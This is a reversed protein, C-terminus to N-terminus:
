GPDPPTPLAARRTSLRTKLAQMTIRALSLYRRRLPRTILTGSYVRKDAGGFEKKFRYLGHDGDQPDRAAARVEGLSFTLFGREKLSTVAKWLVPYSANLRYGRPASGGFLYVAHRAFTSLLVCSLPEGGECALFLEAEGSGILERIAKLFFEEDNRNRRKGSSIHKAITHEFLPQVRDLAPDDARTICRADVAHREAKRLKRRVSDALNAFLVEQSQELDLTFSIKEVTGEEPLAARYEEPSNGFRVEEAKHWGALSIVTRVVEDGTIRSPEYCPLSEMALSTSFVLPGIRSSCLAYWGAAAPAGQRRITVYKCEAGSMVAMCRSWAHSQVFHGKLGAILDNWSRPDVETADAVEV